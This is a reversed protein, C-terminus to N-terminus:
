IIEYVKWKDAELHCSQIYQQILFQEEPEWVHQSKLLFINKQNEKM